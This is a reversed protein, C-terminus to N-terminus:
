WRIYQIEQEEAVMALFAGVIILIIGAIPLKSILIGGIFGLLGSLFALLGHALGIIFPQIKSWTLLIVLLLGTLTILWSVEEPVSGFNEPIIKWVEYLADEVGPLGFGLLIGAVIAPIFVYRLVIEENTNSKM